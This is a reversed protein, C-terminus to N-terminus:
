LIKRNEEEDSNKKLCEAEVFLFPTDHKYIKKSFKKRLVHVYEFTKSIGDVSIEERERISKSHKKTVKEIISANILAM